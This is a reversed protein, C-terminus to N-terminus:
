EKHGVVKVGFQKSGGVKIDELFDSEILIKIEKINLQPRCSLMEKQSMLLHEKSRNQM